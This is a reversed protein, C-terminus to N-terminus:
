RGKPPSNDNGGYQAFYNSVRDPDFLWITRMQGPASLPRDITAGRSVAVDNVASVNWVIYQMGGTQSDSAAGTKAPWLRLTVSGYRFGYMTVGLLPNQLPELVELGMLDRYFTRSRDLDAVALGIEFRALADASAGPVIVVEVWHGAPDQVLTARTAGRHATSPQFRPPPLGRDVFRKTLADEDASFFTLLRMGAVDSVAAVNPAAMDTPFLKVESAGVPYRIMQGGGPATPPLVPLALVRAYFAEVAARRDAPFRRFVNIEGVESRSMGAQWLYPRITQQALVVSFTGCSLAFALALTRSRKVAADESKQVRGGDNAGNVQRHEHESPESSLLGCYNTTPLQRNTIPPIEGGRRPRIAAQSWLQAAAAEATAALRRVRDQRPCRCRSRESARESGVRSSCPM